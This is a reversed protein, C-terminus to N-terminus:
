RSEVQKQIKWRVQSTANAQLSRQFEGQMADILQTSPQDITLQRTSGSSNTLIVTMTSPAFSNSSDSSQAGATASQMSTAAPLGSPQESRIGVRHLQELVSQTGSYLGEDHESDAAFCVGILQGNSNFLGGGSRGQVPMGAAEINPAGLYRNLKTIRTDRRTPPDGHDCGVSFVADGQKASEFQTAVSASPVVKGPNFVLVGIDVDEIRYDVLEAPYRVPVGNEFREITISSNKTWDRFLHGCTLVVAGQQNSQIITGSGVAHSQPEDIVIRVTALQATDASSARQKMPVLEDTKPNNRPASTTSSQGAKISDASSFELMRRNFETWAVPGLIRDVERGARVLVTTPLNHIRWKSATHPERRVDVHRITWGVEIAKNTVLEMSSNSPDLPDVFVIALCDGVVENGQPLRTPHQGNAADFFDLTWVLLGVCLIKSLLRSRFEREMPDEMIWGLITVDNAAVVL